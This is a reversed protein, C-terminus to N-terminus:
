GQRCLMLAELVKELPANMKKAAAEPTEKYDNILLLADAIAKQTRGDQYAYNKIRQYTMFEHRWQMNHKADNVYENLRSTFSNKAKNSILFDFFNRTEDNEIMKACRPAIFFHKYDRNRYSRQILLRFNKEEATLVNTKCM